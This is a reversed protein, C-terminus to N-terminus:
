EAEEPEPLNVFETIKRGCNPCFNMGSESPHYDGFIYEEGCGECNWTAYDSYSSETFRTTQVFYSKVSYDGQGCKCGSIDQGILYHGKSEM